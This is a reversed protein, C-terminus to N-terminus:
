RIPCAGTTCDTVDIEFINDEEEKLLEPNFPLMQNKLEEYEEKTIEEYPALEYNGGDYPLFTVGIIDKWKDWVIEEVKNWENEKVYITNSSNHTTYYKQFTFYTNFQEEVTLDKITKTASSKVPFDVVLTNANEWTSGVEPHIRWNLKRVVDVLPDHANIRIRRIYYPAFSIHLGSSVGGALQSLTGEPKITTYLLPTPIRLLHSYNIAEQHAIHRLHYLLNKEQAKPLKLLEMADKWGTLSCGILRDRKHVKNWNPLELTLCTMRMGIRVSLQQALTLGEMDLIHEGDRQIVYALMNVTTLNCIGHSDLLVEGCPNMGKVNPRRKQAATLNFFNPEGNIRISKFINHLKEPTPKSTFVISNNSMFRHYLHPQLNNKATIVEEDDEDCLFIIATRRVGGVVVNNGILNCIDLIHIPRIRGNEIPALTTDLEDKFVKDIGIFMNKLPEPGSATGGFTKLREGQPRISNYSIKIHKINRYKEATIIHLFHFLAKCWAEKSDGVYIKIYGNGLNNIITEELREEKSLPIYPSHTLTYDTRIPILSLTNKKSCRIGAGTGVLLLYFLDCLDEWETIELFSCNFNSLPFKKAVGTEAGGVWLTRGSPFQRLNFINDFLIEAEKQIETLETDTLKYNMDYFHKIAINLSYSVTRTVVEKWTERRQQHPLFRSYTRYFVFKSLENMHIPENPYKSLFTSTLLEM